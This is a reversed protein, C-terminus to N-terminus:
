GISNSLPDGNLFSDLLEDKHAQLEYKKIQLYFLGSVALGLVLSVEYLTAM